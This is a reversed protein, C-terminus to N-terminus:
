SKLRTLVSRKISFSAGGQSALKTSNVTSGFRSSDVIRLGGVTTADAVLTCHQKSVSADGPVAIDPANATGAKAPRGVVYSGTGFHYRAQETVQVTGDATRVTGNIVCLWM